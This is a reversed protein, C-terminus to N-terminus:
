LDSVWQRTEMPVQVSKRIETVFNDPMIPFHREELIPDFGDLFTESGNYLINVSSPTIFIQIIPWDGRKTPKIFSEHIGNGMGYEYVKVNAQAQLMELDLTKKELAELAETAGENRKLIMLKLM